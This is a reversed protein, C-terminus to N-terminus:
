KDIPKPGPKRNSRAYEEISKREVMWYSGFKKGRLIGALLLQRVRGTSKLKLIDAAQTVTVHDEIVPDERSRKGRMIFLQTLKTVMSGGM